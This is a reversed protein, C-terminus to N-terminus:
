RMDFPCYKVGFHLKMAVYEGAALFQNLMFSIIGLQLLSSGKNKIQKILLKVTKYETFICIILM